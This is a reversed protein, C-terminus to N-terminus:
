SGRDKNWHTVGGELYAREVKFVSREDMWGNYVKSRTGVVREERKREGPVGRRSTGHLVTRDLDRTACPLPM